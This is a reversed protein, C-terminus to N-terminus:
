RSEPLLSFPQGGAKRYVSFDRRDLTFITEIGEEESLWLLTLDALQPSLDAYKEALEILKRSAGSDIEPCQIVGGDLLALLRILGDHESRLLWAAEALVAWSTIMPQPLDRVAAACRGHAADRENLLAVLPGTDILVRNAAM